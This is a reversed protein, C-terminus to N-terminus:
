ELASTKLLPFSLTVIGVTIIIVLLPGLIFKAVNAREVGEVNVLGELMRQGTLREKAMVTYKIINENKDLIGFSSDEPM